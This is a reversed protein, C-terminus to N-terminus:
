FFIKFVVQLTNLYTNFGGQFPFVIRFYYSFYIFFIRFYNKQGLKQTLAM